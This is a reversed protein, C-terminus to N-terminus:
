SNMIAAAAIISRGREGCARSWLSIRAPAPERGMGFWGISRRVGEVMDAVDGETGAGNASLEARAAFDIGYFCAHQGDGGHADTRM